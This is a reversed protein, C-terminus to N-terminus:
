DLYRDMQEPTFKALARELDAGNLNSLHAFEDGGTSVIAAPPVHALTPPLTSRDVGRATKPATAPAAAATPKLGLGAVTRRHAEDAYWNLDKDDARGEKALLAIRETGLAQLQRNFIDFLLPAARYDIGQAKFGEISRNLDTQHRATEAAAAAQENFEQMLKATRVQDKIEDAAADVRDEIAGYSEATMTGDLMETRAAQKETRLTALRADADAPLEVRYQPPPPAQTSSDVPIDVSTPAPAAAPKAAAAAPKPAEDDTYASEDIADPEDHARAAAALDDADAKPLGEADLSDNTLAEIEAPSLGQHDPNM